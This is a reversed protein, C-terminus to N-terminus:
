HESQSSIAAPIGFEDVLADLEREYATLEDLLPTQASTRVQGLAAATSTAELEHLRQHLRALRPNLLHRPSEGLWSELPCPAEHLRRLRQHAVAAENEAARKIARFRSQHFIISAILYLAEAPWALAGAWRWSRPMDWHRVWDSVERAPMAPAIAFGQGYRCGAQILRRGQEESAIGEAVVTMGILRSARVAGVVIGFSRLDTAMEGILGGDIKLEYVPLGLLRSLSAAGTGFDDLAVNVGADRCARLASVMPGYHRSLAADAVELTLRPALEPAPALAAQLDGIFGSSRLHRAGINVAITLDPALSEWERLRRIADALARRGLEAILRSDRRVEPVWQAAHVWGDGPHYWRALSEVGAVRGTGLEVQPQYHFAIDGAELAAAFGERLRHREILRAELSAEFLAWGNGGERKARYMALDARRLLDEGGAADRPYIAVGVSAQIRVREGAIELPESLAQIARDLVADLHATADSTPLIAALEDGGLRAVTDGSRFARQLRGAAARIVDDGAEHGLRDNIDKFNDLDFLALAVERGERQARNIAMELRDAYLARNPLGTLADTLARRRLAERHAYAQLAFGMSAAMREVLEILEPQFYAAARSGLALVAVCQEGRRIPVAAVSRLGLDRVVRRGDSPDDQPTVDPWVLTKGRRFTTAAIRLGGRADRRTGLPLGVLHEAQAAPLGDIAAIRLADLDPEPVAVYVVLNGAMGALIRAAEGYLFDPTPDRAVIENIEVLAAYFAQYRATEERQWALDLGTAVTEAMREILAVLEETYHRPENAVLGLVGRPRGEVLLAVAAGSRLGRAQLDRAIRRYGAREELWDQVVLTRAGRAIRGVFGQGHESGADTSITMAAILDAAPGIAAAFDARSADVDLTYAYVAASGTKAAILSCTEELLQGADLGRGVLGVVASLAAYYPETDSARRTIRAALRQLTSGPPGSPNPPPKSARNM